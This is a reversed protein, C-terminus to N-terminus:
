KSPVMDTTGTIGYKCPWVGALVRDISTTGSLVCVMAIM